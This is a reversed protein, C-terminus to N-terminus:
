DTMKQLLDCMKCLEGRSPEGCRTCYNLKETTKYREQIKPLIELFASVINMKIKSNKKELEKLENRVKRRFVNVSCPCPEYVVPFGMSESYKRVEENLCFYLPKIRPVFKKDRIIGTMPGMSMNMELKGKFLNMLVTEAGDDLNHGTAIKTAGLGRSKKNLLWRKIIGCILCNNLKHKVQVRSRFYCMSCGFEERLNVVHLKIKHKDCFGQINSLNQDSWKGILLDIILGEAKYGLKNLLYLVATSDKGGSVAVIVKDKPSILNYKEVTDMVKKEFATIFAKGM